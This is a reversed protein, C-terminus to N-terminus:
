LGREDIPRPFQARDEKQGEAVKAAAIAVVRGQNKAGLLIRGKREFVDQISENREPIPDLTHTQGSTLRRKMGVERREDPLDFLRTEQDLEICVARM